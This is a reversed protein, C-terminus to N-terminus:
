AAGGSRAGSMARALPSAPVDLPLETQGDDRKVRIRTRSAAGLGLEQGTKEVRAQTKQRQSEWAALKNEEADSLAKKRARLKDIRQTLWRVRSVGQCYGAFLYKDTEALTGLEVFQPGQEMWVRLAEADTRLYDPAEGLGLTVQPEGLPDIPRHGPNGRLLKLATPTPKRGRM